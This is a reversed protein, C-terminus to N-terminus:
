ESYLLMISSARNSPIITGLELLASNSLGEIKRYFNYSYNHMTETRSKFSKITYTTIPYDSRYETHIYIICYLEKDKSLIFDGLRIDQMLGKLIM